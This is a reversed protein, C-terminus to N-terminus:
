CIFLLDLIKMDPFFTNTEALRQRILHEIGAQNETILSLVVQNLDPRHERSYGRTIHNAQADLIFYRAKFLIIKKLRLCWM